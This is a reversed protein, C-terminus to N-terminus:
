AQDGVEIADTDHIQFGMVWKVGAELTWLNEKTKIDNADSLLDTGLILNMHKGANGPMMPGGILRRSGTLWTAPKVFGKGDTGPIPILGQKILDSVEPTTYKTLKDEIGDLLFEVDTYSASIIIGWRKYAPHFARFLKRFATLATAGDTIAGTTVPSIETATIADAILSRLGITTARATVKRWKAPTDDPDEGASTAALAQWYHLVGGQTYTIYDGTSYTSAPNFAVADTKDFGYYAAEDNLERQINKLTEEWCYRAFTYDDFTKNAGSGANTRWALYSNRFKEPDILLERKAPYVELFRNTFEWDGSQFETVSSFPRIGDGVRLKPLPIKNKVNPQVMIDNAIDLGNVLTSILEKKGEDAYDAIASVDIADFLAGAPFQQKFLLAVRSLVYLGGITFLPNVGAVMGLMTGMVILFLFRTVTKM